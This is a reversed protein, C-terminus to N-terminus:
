FCILRSTQLHTFHRLVLWVWIENSIARASPLSSVTLGGTPESIGDAYADPTLRLLETEAEGFAPSSQNNDWGDFSRYDDQGFTSSGGFIIEPSVALAAFIFKRQMWIFKCM